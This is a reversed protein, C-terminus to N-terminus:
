LVGKTSPIEVAFEPDIAVAARLCRAAAKFAGEMIHHSNAGAMKQLHLTLQAQRAFAIWFEEFLETDFDGVKQTPIEVQGYYGGRGSLDAAALILTEDMPLLSQGYRCVGRKDGLAQRFADGLCIGVDEVTHHYDVYTDGTCTLELDFRGHRAFLVLMHDLFGCGTACNGKGTGELVLRLSIDTEATTRKIEATRM